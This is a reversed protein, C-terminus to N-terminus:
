NQKCDNLNKLMENIIIENKLRKIDSKRLSSDIKNYIIDFQNKVNNLSANM